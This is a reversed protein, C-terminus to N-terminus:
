TSAGRKYMITNYFFVHSDKINIRFFTIYGNWKNFEYKYEEKKLRYERPIELGSNMLSESEMKILVEV